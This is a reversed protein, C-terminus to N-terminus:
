REKKRRNSVCGRKQIGCVRAPYLNEKDWNLVINKTPCCQLSLTELDPFIKEIRLRDENSGDWLEAEIIVEIPKKRYKM